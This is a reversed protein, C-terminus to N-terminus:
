FTHLVYIKLSKWTYVCLVCCVACLVCCVACLVCLVFCLVCFVSCLACRVACLVYLVYHEAVSYVNDCKRCYKGRAACLLSM